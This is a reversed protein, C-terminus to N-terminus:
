LYQLFSVTKTFSLGKDLRAKLKDSPIGSPLVTTGLIIAFESKTPNDNLGDLTIILIHTAFWAFCIWLLYTLKRKKGKLLPQKSPAITEPM